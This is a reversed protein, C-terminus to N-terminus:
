FRVQIAGTFTRFNPYSYEDLRFNTSNTRLAVEPDFGTYDTFTLLNRGTVSLRIEEVYNGVSGLQKQGMTYSLAVERLKLFSADEVFYSSANAGNYIESSSNSYAVDYGAAGHEQQIKHRNNFILLQKTYNYVDGGQNWDLLLYLGIGKYNFSNSFGVTFDPNTNGIATVSTSGDEDVMYTIQEDPTGHTGAPVVYGEDNIEFDDVTLTGNGDTDIGNNLVEGNVVTLQDLSTLAKNGYMTGYPVGAEFRFLDIAGGASRTFPPIGGLSTVEQTIKSWTLSSSWSLNRNDVIQGSLMFELASSEIEGVNQWQASFGATSSLPVLLYDNEVNTIAYNAEFNYRDLFTINTGFEFEAVTSPKIENNGLIGPSIGSSSASYTEYQASFPPRQGSTGYSARVKWENVGDIDFDETIRYALSGRYYTQWREESGFGSSGDRRVLGSVIIKDLYDVDVNLFFNEARVIQSYSGINYTDSDTSGISRINPVPYDSGSLSVQDTERDEYLYKLTTNLNFDDFEQNYEFWLESIATTFESRARSDFGNNLTPSPTPTQYGKPYYTENNRFEKDLSQRGNISLNNTIAYNITLGAIVRDRQFATTRQEAVYLPNQFNSSQVDYGTLGENKFTGDANKENFNIFPEATLASYFYNSGQGQEPITPAEVNIYSASVSADLKDNPTFNANFRVSNRTYDEVPEIVGGQVFNDYSVRYNYLEGSNALAVSNNSYPNGTFIAEVNDRLPVPYDNDFRRDADYNDYGDWTVIYEGTSDLVLNNSLDWPHKTASPYDSAIESYGYESRITLEPERVKNANRKTIVQIVGNGALSGYLSAAAAGKVVEISQVDNMNIDGLSGSTIVGDVIILPSQNGNISTSGRLRIDPASSPDGSARVITVGSVKGRLASAPDAAPVESLQQESVKGVSFGLKTTQTGQGVGTVVVDELGFYDPELDFDVVVDSNGVQVTTESKKYGLFSATVTYTGSPVNSITYEGDVNTAAGRSLEAIVVNAGPMTEGTTADTVVGSISGQAFLIVPVLMIFATSLLKRLM